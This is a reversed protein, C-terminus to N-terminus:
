LDSLLLVEYGEQELYMKVPAVHMNGYFVAMRKAKSDKCAAIIHQAIIKNRLLWVRVYEKFDVNGTYELLQCQGYHSQQLWAQNNTFAFVACTAMASDIAYNFRNWFSEYGALDSTNALAESFRGYAESQLPYTVKYDTPYLYSIGLQSDIPFVLRFFESQSSNIKLRQLRTSLYRHFPSSTDALLAETSQQQLLLYSTYDRNAMDTQLHLYKWLQVQDSVSKSAAFRQRFHSVRDALNQMPTSWAMAMSDWTRRFDHGLYYIQSASDNPHVYEVAIQDPRFRLVSEFAYKWNCELSDPIQHMVGVLLISPKQQATAPVCLIIGLILPSLLSHIKHM